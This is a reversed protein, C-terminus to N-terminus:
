EAVTHQTGIATASAVKSVLHFGVTPGPSMPLPKNLSSCADSFTLVHCSPYFGSSVLADISTQRQLALSRVKEGYALNDPHTFFITLRSLTWPPHRHLQGAFFTTTLQSFSRPPAFM